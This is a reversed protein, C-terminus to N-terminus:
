IKHDTKQKKNDMVEHERLYNFYLPFVIYKYTEKANSFYYYYM